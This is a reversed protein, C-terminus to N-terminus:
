PLRQELALVPAFLDGVRELRDLVHGPLFYGAGAEVEEWTLPTSVTPYPAARLSYPAVTSRAADNQLWDVLVKGARRARSQTTVVRHPPLREAVARALAKTADFSTPTNLPVYVHLGLSGSTKPCSRLGLRDLEDRILLAVACADELDAPEGPDLDFVLATPREPEAARALLPHLEIAALNAAWLLSAEDEVLALEFDRVRARPLWAPSGKPWQLQYWGGAEVGDPFRRLTTPRGRLHPLLAPAVLRYYDAMEGKTFGSPWLPKTANSLALANVAARVHM